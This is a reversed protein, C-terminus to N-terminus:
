LPTDKLPWFVGASLFLAINRKKSPGKHDTQPWTSPHGQFFDRLNPLAGTFFATGLILTQKDHNAPTESFCPAMDLARGLLGRKTQLTGLYILFCRVMSEWHRRWPPRLIKGNRNRQQFQRNARRPGAAAAAAKAGAARARAAAAPAQSDFSAM